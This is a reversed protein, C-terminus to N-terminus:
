GPAGDHLDTRRRQGAENGAEPLLLRDAGPHERRLWNLYDGFITSVHAGTFETTEFGYYPSPLSTIRGAEWLLRCESFRSPDVDALEVGNPAWFTRAHIKGVSHTRYGAQRVADVTTPLDTRLNIGNTRVGHGRPTLGTLLTSRSPMCLPNNVYARDCYVGEAALRDFAPTEIPLADAPRGGPLGQWYCGLHDFRHQDTM